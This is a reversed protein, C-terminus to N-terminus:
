KNLVRTVTTRNVGLINAAQTFNRNSQQFVKNFYWNQVENITWNNTRIEHPIVYESSDIRNISTKSGTNLMTPLGLLFARLQNLLERVNGPWDYKLTSLQDIFQDYEEEDLFEANEGGKLDNIFYDGIYKIDKTHDRLPPIVIRSGSVRQLLEPRFVAEDEINQNTASIYRPNAEIENDSGVPRIKKSEIARLIKVQTRKPIDGIEDLFISGNHASFIAGNRNNIAGTFAGKTHGFLESEITQNNLAALNVSIVPGKEFKDKGFDGSLAAQSFLEKGTGSEGIFLINHQRVLKPFCYSEYLTKGFCASWTEYKVKQIDESIGVVADLKDFVRKAALCLNNCKKIHPVLNQHEFYERPIVDFPLKYKKKQSKLVYWHGLSLLFQITLIDDELQILHKFNSKFNDKNLADIIEDS